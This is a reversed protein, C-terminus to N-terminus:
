NGEGTPSIAEFTFAHGCEPCSVVWRPMWIFRNVEAADGRNAREGNTEESREAMLPFNSSIKRLVGYMSNPPHWSFLDTHPIFKRIVGPGMRTDWGHRPVGPKQLDSVM